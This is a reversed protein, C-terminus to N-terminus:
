EKGGKVWGKAAAMGAAFAEEPTPSFNDGFIPHFASFLKAVRRRTEENYYGAYYGINSRAIEVVRELTLEPSFHQHYKVMDEFYRGAEEEDTIEMAPRLIEGYTLPSDKYEPFKAM